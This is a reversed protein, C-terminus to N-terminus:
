LECTFQLYVCSYILEVFDDNNFTHTSIHKIEDLLHYKPLPLKITRWLSNDLNHVMVINEKKNYKIYKFSGDELQLTKYKSDITGEYKLQAFSQSSCLM